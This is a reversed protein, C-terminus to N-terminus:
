EFFLQVTARMPQQIPPEPCRGGQVQILNFPSGTESGGKHFKTFGARSVPLDLFIHLLFANFVQLSVFLKM